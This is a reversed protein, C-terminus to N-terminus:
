IYKKTKKKQVSGPRCSPSGAGSMPKNSHVQQYKIYKASLHPMKLILKSKQSVAWRGRGYSFMLVWKESLAFYHSLLHTPPCNELFRFQDWKWFRLQNKTAGTKPSWKWSLPKGLGAPFLRKKRSKNRGGFFYSNERRAFCSCFFDDAGWLSTFM